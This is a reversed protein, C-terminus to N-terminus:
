WSGANERHQAVGVRQPPKGWIAAFAEYSTGPGEAPAEHSQEAAAEQDEVTGSRWIATDPFFYFILSLVLFALVFSVLIRAAITSWDRWVQREYLGVAFMMVLIVIAFILSQPLHYEIAQLPQSTDGWRLFIGAYIAVLLIAADLVALLINPIPVYHNFVRIM